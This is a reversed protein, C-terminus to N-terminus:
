EGVVKQADAVVYGFLAIGCSALVQKFTVGGGQLLPIAVNGIAIVAGLMTTKWNPGFNDTMWKTM